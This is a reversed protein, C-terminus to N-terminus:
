GLAGLCFQANAHGHAALGRFVRLAEAQASTPQRGILEWVLKDPKINKEPAGAGDLRVKFRGPGALWALVEGERGNLEAAGTLGRM